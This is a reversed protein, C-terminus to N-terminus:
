LSGTAELMDEGDVIFINYRETNFRLVCFNPDDPGSWMGAMPAFWNDKKVDSDTIIEFKGVLNINFDGSCICISARNDKKIRAAANADPSTAFNLWKIGDARAITKASVTPYGNEDILGIAAYGAMGAEFRDDKVYNARANIIESAKAITKEQNM